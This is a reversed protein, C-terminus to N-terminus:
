CGISSFCGCFNGVGPSHTCPPPPHTRMNFAKDPRVKQALKDSLTKLLQEGNMDTLMVAPQRDVIRHAHTNNAYGGPMHHVAVTNKPLQQRKLLSGQKDCGSNAPFKEVVEVTDDCLYYHIVLEHRATPSVTM